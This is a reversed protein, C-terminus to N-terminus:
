RFVASAYNVNLDLMKTNGTISKKVNQLIPCAEQLARPGDAPLCARYVDVGFTTYM